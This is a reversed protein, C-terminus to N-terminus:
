IFMGSSQIINYVKVNLLSLHLNQQELKKKVM